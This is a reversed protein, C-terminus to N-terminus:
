VSVSAPRLAILGDGPYIQRSPYAFLREIIGEQRDNEDDDEGDTEGLEESEDDSKRENERKKGGRNEEIATVEVQADDGDGDDGGEVMEEYGRPMVRFSLDAQIRPLHGEIMGSGGVGRGGEVGAGDEAGRIGGTAAVKMPVPVVPTKEMVAGVIAKPKQATPRVKGSGGVNVRGRGRGRGKGRGGQRGSAAGAGGTDAGAVPGGNIFPRTPPPSAALAVTDPPSEKTGAAFSVMKKGIGSTGPCNELTSVPATPEEAVDHQEKEAAAERPGNGTKNPDKVSAPGRSENNGDHQTQAPTTSIPPTLVPGIGGAAADDVATSDTVAPLKETSAPAAGEGGSGSVVGPVAAAALSAHLAVASGAGSKPGFRVNGWDTSRKGSTGVSPSVKAVSGKGETAGAATAAEVGAKAAVVETAQVGSSKTTEVNKASAGGAVPVAPPPQPPPTAKLNEQEKAPTISVHAIGDRVADVSDDEQKNSETAEVEKGRKAREDEEKTSAASASAVLTGGTAAADKNQAAVPTRGGGDGGTTPATSSDARSAKAQVTDGKQEGSGSENKSESRKGAPPLDRRRARKYTKKEGAPAVNKVETKKEFLSPCAARLVGERSSPPTSPITSLLLTTKQM